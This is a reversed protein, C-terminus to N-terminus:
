PNVTMTENNLLNRLSNEDVQGTPYSETSEQFEKLADETIKNFIGDHPIDHGQKRLLAQLEWVGAGKDGRSLGLLQQQHLLRFMQPSLGETEMVKIDQNTYGAEKLERSRVLIGELYATTQLLQQYYDAAQIAEIDDQDPYRVDIDRNHWVQRAFAGIEYVNKYYHQLAEPDHYHVDISDRVVYDYASPPHFRRFKRYQYYAIVPLTIIIVLLALRKM